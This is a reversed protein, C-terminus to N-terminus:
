CTVKPSTHHSPTSQQSIAIGTVKVSFRILECCWVLLVWLSNLLALMSVRLCLSAMIWEPFVETCIQSSQFLQDLDPQSIGIGTDKV